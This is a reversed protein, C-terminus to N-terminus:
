HKARGASEKRGKDAGVPATEGWLNFFSRKVNWGGKAVTTEAGLTSPLCMSCKGSKSRMLAIGGM